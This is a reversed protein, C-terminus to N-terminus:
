EGNGDEMMMLVDKHSKEKMGLTEEVELSVPHSYVGQRAM